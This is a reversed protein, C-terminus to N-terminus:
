TLVPWRPGYQSWEQPWWGPRMRDWRQLDVRYGVLINQIDSKRLSYGRMRWLDMGLQVSLDDGPDHFGGLRQQASMLLGESFGHARGVYGYHMNRWVDCACTGDAGLFSSHSGGM